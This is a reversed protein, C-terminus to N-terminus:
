RRGRVPTSHSTGHRYALRCLVGPLLWRMASGRARVGCRRRRRWRREWEWGAGPSVLGFPPLARPAGSPVRYMTCGDSLCGTIHHQAWEGTRRPLGQWGREFGFLGAGILRIGERPRPPCVGKRSLGGGAVNCRMYEYRSTPSQRVTGQYYQTYTNARGRRAAEDADRCSAPCAGGLYSYMRGALGLCVANRPM